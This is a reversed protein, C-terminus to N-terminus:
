VVGIFNGLNGLDDQIDKEGERILDSLRESEIENFSDLARNKYVEQKVNGANNNKMKKLSM